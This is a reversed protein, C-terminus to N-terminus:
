PADGRDGSDPRLAVRSPDLDRLRPLVHHALETAGPAPPVSANPILVVTM